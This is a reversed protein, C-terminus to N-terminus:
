EMVASDIVYEIVDRQLTIMKLHNMGYLNEYQTYDGTQSLGSFYEIADDEKVSIGADEAIAQMILYLKATTKNQELNMELLEETSSAGAYASIFEEYEMEYRIAYNSYYQIMSYEQYEVIIEPLNNITSNVIIYDQIFYELASARINERIYNKMEEVTTWDYYSTLNEQVFADTVEPTITNVIYNLTIAFVADKGALEANGYDDPFTVEIDFSEGPTHGILQELFDDIYQTVGITVDAGAGQTNGGAFEVDDISGVYDINVTDGDEVARDTVQETEEFSKLLLEIEAQIAEDSVEHIDKPVLIGEYDCLDINDMAKIKDWFGNKDIGYSFVFDEDTSTLIAKQSACGAMLVIIMVVGLVLAAYRKIKNM